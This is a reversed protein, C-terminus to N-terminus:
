RNVTTFIVIPSALYCSYGRRVKEDWNKRTLIVWVVRDPRLHVYRYMGIVNLQNLQNLQGM